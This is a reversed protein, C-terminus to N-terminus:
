SRRARPRAPSAPISPDRGPTRLPRCCRARPPRPSWWQQGQQAGARDDQPAAHRLRARPLM